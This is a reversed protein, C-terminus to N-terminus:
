KTLTVIVRLASKHRATYKMFESHKALEHISLSLYKRNLRELLQFLRGSQTNSSKELLISKWKVFAMTIKSNLMRNIITSQVAMIVQKFNDQEDLYEKWRAFSMRLRQQGQMKEIVRKM